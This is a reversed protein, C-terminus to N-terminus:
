KGRERVDDPRKVGGVCQTRIVNEAIHEASLREVRLDPLALRGPLLPICSGVGKEGGSGEEM